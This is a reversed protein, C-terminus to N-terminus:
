IEFVFVRLKITFCHDDYVLAGFAHRNHVLFLNVRDTNLEFVNYNGATINLVCYLFM